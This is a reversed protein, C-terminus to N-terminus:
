VLPIGPRPCYDGVLLRFIWASFCVLIQKLLFLIKKSFCYHRYIKEIFYPSTFLYDRMLVVQKVPSFFMAFNAPSFLCSAKEEKILRRLEVQDWWLRKFGHCKRDSVLHFNIGEEEKIKERTKFPLCILFDDQKGQKKIERLFNKLYTLAGGMKVSIANVVIKEKVENM